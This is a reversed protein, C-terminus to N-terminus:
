QWHNRIYDNAQIPSLKQSAASTRIYFGENSHWKVYVPQTSGDIELICVEKGEIEEIHAGLFAHFEKGLFKDILSDLHLLFGDKNNKEGFTQYDDKLGLVSGNDAVGIFLTGGEVNMFSAITKAIIYESLDKPKDESAQSWRMSEKFEVANSEGQSIVDSYDIEESLGEWAKRFAELFSNIEKVIILRRAKLFGKYNDVKWLEQNQPIFHEELYQPEIEPLYDIPKKNSIDYNSTRTIFARNAIENVLKREIHNNSDYGSDYLVSTPFIHHSQISYYDGMSNRIAGGTIWDDAEKWKTIVYLMRYLPHGATRYEIDTVSVETRGRLDQIEYIMRQIPNSSQLALSVDRDLRQDTQGSYRSWVHALFIWYIFGKKIKDNPFKENKLLYAIVPIFINDSQLDNSSDIYADKALIPILYDIVRIIQNWTKEYEEKTVESYVDNTMGKYLASNTIGVVMCRTFFDLDLDFQKENKLEQQKEKIVRRAEPWKGTIHALVLEADTLPTGQSNIRDFVDIAEDISASSQVTQIPYVQRKIEQLKNLNKNITKILERNSNELQDEIDFPDIKMAFCDTVKQWLPNNLMRQKQYYQFTGEELNFYLDRPDNIIDEETYYPPISNNIFLYLTTLRQQGDLIVQTIGVREKEVAENKIEPPNDTDWMLLSGTPYENFLSVLLQKAQDKSWVYERQFEPLVIQKSEIQYLLKDIQM